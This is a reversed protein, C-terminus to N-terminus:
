SAKRTRAGRAAARQTRQFMVGALERLHENYRLLIFAQDRSLDGFPTAYDIGRPARTTQTIRRQTTYGARTHGKVAHSGGSRARSHASIQMAPMQVAVVVQSKRVDFPHKDKLLNLAGGGFALRSVVAGGARSTRVQRAALQKQLTGTFVYDPKGRKKRNYSKTRDAFQYFHHAARTFRAALGPPQTATQWDTLALRQAKAIMAALARPSLGELIQQTTVGSV